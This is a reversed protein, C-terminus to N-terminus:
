TFLLQELLDPEQSEESIQKSLKIAKDIDILVHNSSVCELGKATSLANLNIKLDESFVVVDDKELSIQMNPEASNKELQFDYGLAVAALIVGENESDESFIILDKQIPNCYYSKKFVKVSLTTSLKRFAGIARNEGDGVDPFCAFVFSRNFGFSKVIKTGLSADNHDFVGDFSGYYFNIFAQLIPNLVNIRFQKPELDGFLEFILVNRLTNQSCLKGLLAPTKGDSYFKLYLAAFYDQLSKHTWRFLLGEEQFLPVTSLLDIRLKDIQVEFGTNSAAKSLIDSFEDATYEVKGIVQSSYFAARALIKQLASKELGTEKARTFSDGKSLDHREFLADFVQEYFVNKRFPIKDKYDYASYLLSVLLPNGLFSRISHDVNALEAILKEAKKGTNLADYKRILTNSQEQTLPRINFELFSTFSSLSHEPRSTLIFINKSSRAIFDQLNRTIQQKESSPIEDYGDLFFVFDGHELLYLFADRDISNKYGNLEKLIYDVINVQASLRRLNIFLPMLSTSKLSDLFMWKLCTSKGMGASDRILIHRHKALIAEPFGALVTSNQPQQSDIILPVYVQELLIRKNRLVISNLFQHQEIQYALYSKINNEFNLINVVTEARAKLHEVYRQLTTSLFPAAVKLVTDITAPDM